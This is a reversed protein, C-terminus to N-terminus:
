TLNMSDIHVKTEDTGLEHLLKYIRTTLDWSEETMRERSVNAFPHKLFHLAEAEEMSALEEFLEQLKNLEEENAQIELEYAAATPDELIQGAGVAVYYPKRMSYAEDILNMTVAGEGYTEGAYGELRVSM